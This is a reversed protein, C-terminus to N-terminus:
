PFIGEDDPDVAVEVVEYLVEGKEDDYLVEGEAGAYIVEGKEGDYIVEGKEGDYIVEGEEGSFMAEGELGEYIVEEEYYDDEELAVPIDEDEECLAKMGEECFAEVSFVKTEKGESFVKTEKEESYIYNEGSFVKKEFFSDEEDVKIEEDQIESNINFFVKSDEEDNEFDSNDAALFGKFENEQEFVVKVGHEEKLHSRLDRIALFYHDCLDCKSLSKEEKKTVIQIGHEEKLHRNLKYGRNSLFTKDCLECKTLTEENPKHRKEHASLDSKRQFLASCYRCQVKLGPDTNHSDMHKRLVFRFKYANGCIECVHKREDCHSILHDKLKKWDRFGSFCGAVRCKMPKEGTHSLVHYIHDKKQKYEKGCVRCRFRTPGEKVLDTVMVWTKSKKKMQGKHFELLEDYKPNKKEFMVSEDEDEEEEDAQNMILEEEKRVEEEIVKRRKELRSIRNNKPKGAKDVHVRKHIYYGNRHKVSFGCIECVYKREDCHYILHTELSRWNSYTSSCNPLRCRYSKEGTHKLAHCVFSAIKVYAVGCERCKFRKEGTKLRELLRQWSTPKRSVKRHFDQLMDIKLEGTYMLQETDVGDAFIPDNVDGVVEINVSVKDVNEQNTEITENDEESEKKIKAKKNPFCPTSNNM